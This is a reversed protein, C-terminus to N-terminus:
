TSVSGQFLFSLAIAGLTVFYIVAMTIGNRRQWKKVENRPDTEAQSTM